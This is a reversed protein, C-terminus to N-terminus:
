LWLLQIWIPPRGQTTSPPKPRTTDPPRPRSGSQDGWGLGVWARAEQKRPSMHCSLTALTPPLLTGLHSRVTEKLAHKAM